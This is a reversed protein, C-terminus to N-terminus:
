LKLAPLRLDRGMQVDDVRHYGRKISKPLKHLIQTRNVRGCKKYGRTPHLECQTVRIRVHYLFSFPIPEAWTEYIHKIGANHRM